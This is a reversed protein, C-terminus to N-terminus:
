TTKLTNKKLYNQSVKIMFKMTRQFQNRAETVSPNSCDMLAHIEDGNAKTNCLHCDKMRPIGQYRLREIPLNHASIRLKTISFRHWVNNVQEQYLEFEYHTKSKNDTRLKNDTKQITIIWISDIDIKKLQSSLNTVDADSNLETIEHM